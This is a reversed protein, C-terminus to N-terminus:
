KPAVMEARLISLLKVLYTIASAVLMAVTIWLFIVKSADWQLTYAVVTLAMSNVTVKGLMNSEVVQRTRYMLWTGLFLIGLDRGIVLLLFWLPLGKTKVLVIAIVAMCIKDAIPDLVRGLDSKQNLRRALTGDYADTLAALCMVLVALYNYIPAERALLYYIPIALFIRALSLLNSAYGLESFKM